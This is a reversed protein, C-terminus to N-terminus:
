QVELHVRACGMQSQQNGHCRSWGMGCSRRRLSSLRPTHSPLHQAMLFNLATKQFYFVPDIKLFCPPAPHLSAPPFHHKSCKKKLSKFCSVSVYGGQSRWSHLSHLHLQAPFSVIHTVFAPKTNVDNTHLHKAEWEWPFFLAHLPFEEDAPTLDRWM